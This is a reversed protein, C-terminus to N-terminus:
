FPTRLSDLATKYTFASDRRGPTPQVEVWAEDKHIALVICKDGDADKVCDGQAIARSLRTGADLDRQLLAHWMTSGSDVITCFVAGTQGHVDTDVIEVTLQVRDGKHYTPRPENKVKTEM